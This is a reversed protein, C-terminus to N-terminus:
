KKREQGRTYSARTVTSDSKLLFTVPYPCQRAVFTLSYIAALTEKLTIHLGRQNHSFPQDFQNTKGGTKEWGEGWGMEGRECRDLPDSETSPTESHPAAGPTQPGGIGGEADLVTESLVPRLSEVGSGWTADM